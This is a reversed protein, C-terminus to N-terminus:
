NNGGQTQSTQTNNSQSTASTNTQTTSSGGNHNPLGARYQAVKDANTQVRATWQTMIQAKIEQSQTTFEDIVAQLEAHMAEKLADLQEVLATTDEEAEEAAAIQDKLDQIQPAYEAHIADKAAKFEEVLERTVGAAVQTNARIRAIMGEPDLEEIEADSLESEVEMAQNMLRYQMASVGKAQAAAVFEADYNRAQVNANLARESMKTQLKDQVMQRVKTGIADTNGIADVQIVTEEAEVDIFGLDMAEDIIQAIADDVSKEGLHLELLLMEGDENLAHATKVINQENIVLGVSPNIDITAYAEYPANNACAVLLTAILGIFLLTFWKKM